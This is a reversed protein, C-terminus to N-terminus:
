GRDEKGRSRCTLVPTHLGHWAYLSPLIASLCLTAVILSGGAIDTKSEVCGMSWVAPVNCASSSMGLPSGPLFCDLVCERLM